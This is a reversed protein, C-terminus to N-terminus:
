ARFPPLRLSSGKKILTTKGAGSPGLLGFIEGKRIQININNLVKREGFSKTIGNIAVAKNM